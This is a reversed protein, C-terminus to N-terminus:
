THHSTKKTNRGALHGQPAGMGADESLVAGDVGKPVVLIALTSSVVHRWVFGKIALTRHFHIGESRPGQFSAMGRILVSKLIGLIAMITPPLERFGKGAQTSSGIGHVGEWISIVVLVTGATPVLYVHATRSLM